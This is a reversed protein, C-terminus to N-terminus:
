ALVAPIESGFEEGSNKRKCAVIMAVAAMSHLLIFKKNFTQRNTRLPPDQWSQRFTWFTVPEPPLAKYQHWGCGYGDLCVTKQSLYQPTPADPLQGWAPLTLLLLLLYKMPNRM